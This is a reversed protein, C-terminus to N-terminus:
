NCRSINTDRTIQIKKPPCNSVLVVYKEGSLIDFKRVTASSKINEVVENGKIEVEDGENVSITLVIKRPEEESDENGTNSNEDEENTSDEKDEKEKVTTTDTEVITEENDLGFFDRVEPTTFSIILAAVAIITGIIWQWNKKLWTEKQKQNM